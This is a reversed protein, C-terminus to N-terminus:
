PVSALASEERPTFLELMVSAGCGDIAAVIAKKPVAQATLQLPPVALGLCVAQIM